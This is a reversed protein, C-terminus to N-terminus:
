ELLQTKRCNRLTTYNIQPNCNRLSEHLNLKIKTLKIIDPFAISHYKLVTASECCQQLGKVRNIEFCQPLTTPPDNKFANKLINSTIPSKKLTILNIYKKTRDLCHICYINFDKNVFINNYYHTQILSFQHM